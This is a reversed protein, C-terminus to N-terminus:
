RWFTEDVPAASRAAWGEAKGFKKRYNARVKPYSKTPNPPTLSIWSFWKKLFIVLFNFFHLFCDKNLFFMCCRNLYNSIWPIGGILPFYLVLDVPIHGHQYLYSM